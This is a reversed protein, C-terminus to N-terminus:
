STTPEQKLEQTMWQLYSAAGDVVPLALVEPVEYSHLRVIEAQLREFSERSSKIILLFEQSREVAGRWRYVSQVNPVITVCAALHLEIIAESIRRAEDEGACSCLVVIKDTMAVKEDM